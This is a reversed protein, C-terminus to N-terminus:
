RRSPCAARPFRRLPLLLHAHNRRVRLERRPGLFDGGPVVHARLLLPQELPLHFGEGTEGLVGIVFDAPEDRLEFLDARQLVRQEEVDDAVVARAGLASGLAGVILHHREVADDSFGILHHLVDVVHPSGVVKGCKAM